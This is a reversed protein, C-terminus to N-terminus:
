RSAAGLKANRTPDSAASHMEHRGPSKDALATRSRRRRDNIACNGFGPFGNPITPKALGCSRFEAHDEMCFAWFDALQSGELETIRIVDGHAAEFGRGAPRLNRRPGEDPKRNGTWTVTALVM